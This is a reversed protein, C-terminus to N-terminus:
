KTVSNVVVMITDKKNSEPLEVIFDISITDWPADLVPLPHLQRTPIQYTSKTQLCMDCTSVYKGIYRSMQPWWYNRSVLELTKWRRPHGALKSDHCLILIWCHLESAPVYIKGRYYLLGNEISWESSKVSKTLSRKLEKVAKVVVEEQDKAEMRHRIEKLIDKEEGIVQVGELARVAFLGPTLLTLNQNDDSGSGHDSRQSLMDSKGMTKGPHHHLLFDFRALLLLWRAQRWNLKKASMFYELNKHDMWIEFQHEAGESFHRWEELARVIALMEKNHIEYNREVPSLSKSLFAVPHWKDDELNQQSLVARTTFDSSDAEVRYPRSNDPLTLIPASTIRNRITNFALKEKDSWKFVSNAKTLDFLPRAIHLFGEIFRQYFNVFGLFSQVEKRNMLTPWESVRAVKAPDMNVLNHSIVVELNNPSVEILRGRLHFIDAEVSRVCEMETGRQIDRWETLLMMEEGVCESNSQHRLCFIDAEVNQVYEM